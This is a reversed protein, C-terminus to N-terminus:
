DLAADDVPDPKGVPEVRIRRCRLIKSIQREEIGWARFEVVEHVRFPQRGHTLGAVVRVTAPSKVANDFVEGPTIDRKPKFTQCQPIDLVKMRTIGSRCVGAFQRTMRFVRRMWYLMSGPSPMSAAVSLRSIGRTTGSGPARDYSVFGTKASSVPLIRAGTM